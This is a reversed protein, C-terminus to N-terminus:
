GFWRYCNNFFMKATAVKDMDTRTPNFMVLNTIKDVIVMVADHNAKAEPLSTIFNM